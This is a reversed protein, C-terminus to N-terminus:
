TAAGPAADALGRLMRAAGAADVTEGAALTARLSSLAGAAAHTLPGACARRKLARWALAAGILAEEGGRWLLGADYGPGQGAVFHRAVEQFSAVRQGQSLALANALSEELFPLERPLQPATGGGCAPCDPLTGGSGLVLLRAPLADPERNAEPWPRTRLRLDARIRQITREQEATPHFDMPLSTGEPRADMLFHALEHLAVLAFLTSFVERATLGGLDPTQGRLRFAAGAIKEPSLLIRAGHSLPDHACYLGLLDLMGGGTGGGPLEEIGLARRRDRVHESAAELEEPGVLFLVPSRALSRPDMWDSSLGFGCAEEVAARLGDGLVRRFDAEVAADPPAGTTSAVFVIERM